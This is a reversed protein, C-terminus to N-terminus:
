SAWSELKVRRSVSKKTRKECGPFSIEGRHNTLSQSRRTLIAEVGNTSEFLGVLVASPRATELPQRLIQDPRFASVASSV